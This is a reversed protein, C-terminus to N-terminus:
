HVRRTVMELATPYQKSPKQDHLDFLSFQAGMYVPADVDLQLPCRSTTKKMIKINAREPARKKGM